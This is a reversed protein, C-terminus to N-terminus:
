VGDCFRVASKGSEKHEKAVKKVIDRIKEGKYTGEPYLDNIYKEMQKKTVKDDIWLQRLKTLESPLSAPKNIEKIEEEEERESMWSSVKAKDLKFHEFDFAVLLFM